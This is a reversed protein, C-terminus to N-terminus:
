QFAVRWSSRPVVPSSGASQLPVSSCMECLYSRQPLFLFTLQSPEFNVGVVLAVRIEEKKKRIRRGGEETKRRCTSTSSPSRTSGTSSTSGASSAIGTSSTGRVQLFSYSSTFVRSVVLAIKSCDRLAM